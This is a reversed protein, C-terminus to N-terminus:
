NNPLKQSFWSAAKDVFSPPTEEENLYKLLNEKIKVKVQPTIVLELRGPISLTEIVLLENDFRKTFWFRLMIEWPTKKGAINVGKTTIKCDINEPEVTSLVYFLFVLSIILVVPLWGEVLFLILGVLASIVILTVYFERNRRKFPRAPANWLILDKEAERRIVVPTEESKTEKILSSSNEAPNQTQAPM